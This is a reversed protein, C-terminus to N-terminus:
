LFSAMAIQNSAMAVIPHLGNSNPQLGNISPHLGDSNPQLCDSSPHLGDRQLGDSSSCLGNSNPQLCVMAVLTSAMAIPNSAM